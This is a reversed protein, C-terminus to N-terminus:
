VYCHDTAPAVRVAGCAASWVTREYAKCAMRTAEAGMLDMVDSECAPYVIADRTEDIQVVCVATRLGSGFLLSPSCARAAPSCAPLPSCGATAPVCEKCRPGDGCETLLTRWVGGDREKRAYLYMLNLHSMVLDHGLYAQPSHMM